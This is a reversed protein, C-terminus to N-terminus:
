ANEDAWRKLIYKWDMRDQLVRLVVVTADQEKVTYFILYGRKPKM